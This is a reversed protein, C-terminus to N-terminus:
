KTFSKFVIEIYHKTFTKVGAVSVTIKYIDGHADRPVIYTVTWQNYEKKNVVVNNLCRGSLTEQIGVVPLVNVETKVEHLRVTFKRDQRTYSLEEVLIQDSNFLAIEAATPTDKHGNFSTGCPSVSDPNWQLTQVHKLQKCTQKSMMAIDYQGGNSLLQQTFEVASTMQGKCLDVTSREADVQKSAM